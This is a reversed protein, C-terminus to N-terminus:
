FNRCNCVFSVLAVILVGIICLFINLQDAEAESKLWNVKRKQTFNPQQAKTTQNENSEPEGDEKDSMERGTRVEIKHVYM